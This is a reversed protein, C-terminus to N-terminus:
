LQLAATSVALFTKVGCDPMPGLWSEHRLDLPGRVGNLGPAPCEVDPNLGRGRRAGVSFAGSIEM